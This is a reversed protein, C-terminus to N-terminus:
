GGAVLWKNHHVPEVFRLNPFLIVILERNKGIRFCIKPSLRMVAEDPVVSMKVVFFNRTIKLDFRLEMPLVLCQVILGSDHNPFVSCGPHFTAHLEYVPNMMHTSNYRPIKRVPRNNWESTVGSEKSYPQLTFALRYNDFVAGIVALPDHESCGIERSRGLEFNPPHHSGRLAGAKLSCENSKTQSACIGSTSVQIRALKDAHNRQKRDPRM